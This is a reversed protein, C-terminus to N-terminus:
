SAEKDGGPMIAQSAMAIRLPRKVPELYIPLTIGRRILNVESGTDILVRIKRTELPAYVITMDM